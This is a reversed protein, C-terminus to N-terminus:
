NFSFRNEKFLQVCTNVVNNDYLIGSNETIESLATKVGLSERYPRHSCMAEVVDVVALIRAELCIKNGKLGQPYGSGDLREQHQLVIRSVPWPFTISKLIDLGAQPHTKIMSYEIETLKSPKSLIEAPINIKGIDHLLSAVRLGEIREKSLGMDEAVACALKAVERQHGATYPDRAEVASALADVTGDLTRRLENLNKRIKDEAQKRNTIDWFVVQTAPKGDYTIPIAAVEVDFPIGDLTVFKEEIPEGYSGEQMSKRAREIVIERYDPHVFDLIDLGLVDDICRANVLKLSARNTYVLERNIHVIIAAPNYDVLRRYREQSELLAEQVRKQETIDEVIGDMFVIDDKDDKVARSSLSGWFVSGDKRKLQVQFGSIEGETHIMSIFRERDKENLYLDAIKVNAIEEPSDFGFMRVLTPNVSLLSGEQDITSRFVGVPLNSLLTRFRKESEKLARETNKRETINRGFSLTGTIEGDEYLPITQVLLIDVRGCGDIIRTEYENVNGNLTDLFVKQIRELDDPHVLPSFNKEEWDVSEQGSMEEAYRNFFVFNGKTDLQWIYERANEVITRYRLESVRIIEESNKRETIDQVLSIIQEVSGDERRDCKSSISVLIINGDKRILRKELNFGNIEGSLVKKLKESYSELDDPHTIDFCKKKLLEKKSYGLMNCVFDNVEMIDNEPSTITMGILGLKFYKKIQKRNM